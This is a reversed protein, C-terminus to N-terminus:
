LKSISRVELRQFLKQELPYKLFGTSILLPHTVESMFIIKFSEASMLKESHFERLIPVFQFIEKESYASLM